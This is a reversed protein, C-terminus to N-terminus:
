DEEERDRLDALRAGIAAALKGQLSAGRETISLYAISANLATERRQYAGIEGPSPPPINADRWDVSDLWALDDGSMGAAALAARASAIEDSHAM